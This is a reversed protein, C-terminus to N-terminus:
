YTPFVQDSIQALAPRILYLIKVLDWSQFVFFCSIKKNVFVHVLWNKLVLKMGTMDLCFTVNVFDDFDCNNLQGVEQM